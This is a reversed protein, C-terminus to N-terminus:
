NHNTINVIGMPTSNSFTPYNNNLILFCLEEMSTDLKGISMWFSTM